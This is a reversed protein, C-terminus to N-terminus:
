ALIVLVWLVREIPEMPAAFLTGFVYLVLALFVVGVIIAIVVSGVDMADEKHWRTHCHPPADM